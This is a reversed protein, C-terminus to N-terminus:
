LVLGEFSHPYNRTDTQRISRITHALETLDLPPANKANWAQAMLTVTDDPLGAAILHGALKALMTNRKGVGVAEMHFDPIDGVPLSSLLRHGDHAKAHTLMWPQMPVLPGEQVWRYVHGSGHLSPAAVVYGGEARLDIGPWSPDAQVNRLGQPYAYFVHWGKGTEVIPLLSEGLGRGQEWQLAFRMADPSDVDLVALGSIAGTVIGINPGEDAFWDDLEEETAGHTQYRKWPILPKKGRPEVPIVSWGRAWYEQAALRTETPVIWRRRPM